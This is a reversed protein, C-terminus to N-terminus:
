GRFVYRRHGVKYRKNHPRDVLYTFIGANTLEIFNHYADDFFMDLNMKKAYEVKTEGKKLTYVQVGPFGHKDLWQETIKTDVPRSTIYCVPEFELQSPKILPKLNLYFDDLTNEKKMEEFRENIQRDFYWSDSNSINYKDKWAGVFDALVEDIDLGIRFNSFVWRDDGQPYIYYYSNLMHANAQLHSVHLLKSEDDYDEGCEIANLHRKLSAIMSTWKLGKKWNNDGYKQSGFTMVQALDRTSLPELLDFRTKNQNFRKAM